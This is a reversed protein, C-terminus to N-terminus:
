LIHVWSRSGAVMDRRWTRFLVKLCKNKPLHKPFVPTKHKMLALKSLKKPKYVSYFQDVCRTKQKYSEPQHTQSPQLTNQVRLMPQVSVWSKTSLYVIYQLMMCTGYLKDKTQQKPIPILDCCLERHM